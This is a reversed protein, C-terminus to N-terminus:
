LTPETREEGRRREATRPAALGEHPWGPASGAASELLAALAAAWAEIDAPREAPRKALAAEFAADAAPPLGPVHSSASPPTGYLVDVLMRAVETGSVVRQGTLAEYAVAALSYLDARADVATGEVQEPSMYAPTGVFNGTRTLKAELRTSKALGFDLLKARFARQDPMLFINAPKVDRHVVGARHAAALAAAAQRLLSAVQAPTGAGHRTLVGALDRGTLLEMVLFASGDELEGSDFLDIVGPHRIRALTQAERELRFRAEADGLMEARIVKLAVDRRLREDHAEFVSGMGGEGLLFALRYRDLVRYPLVRSADLPSADAACREATEDYCRGCRPCLKLTHVGRAHMRERVELQRAATTTLQERLHQLDLASGLHQALAGVLRREADGWAVPGEITLAGRLEGTMGTVRVIASDGAAGLEVSRAAQLAEWSPPAAAGPTLPTLSEGDVRWLHVRRAHIARGVQDAMSTGWASVNELKEPTAESLRALQEQVQRLEENASRLERTQEEVIRELEAARRKLFRMRIRQVGAGLVILGVGCLAQFARTQYFYPQLRLRLTAGSENWVGDANSAKVRFTYDGPALSTYHASRETGADVWDGDFGELRYRFRVREPAPFSLATYRLDFKRSGPPFDLAAGHAPLPAGDLVVEELVVPPALANGALREPDVVVVGKITPFWLRGDRGKWAAPQNEGNCEASRMGDAVGYATSSLRALSGAAVADLEKRSAMFIGRNGSMWLRGQGDELTQFIRDDHLGAKATIAAFRGDRFRTLGSATGIWLTGEGDEYLSAIRDDALGDRTTFVTFTGDRFRNLGSATGIWLDGRSDELIAGARDQSLGDKTTYSTFRGDRFRNLGGGDTGVWLSGQRDEYLSVVYEGSLGHRASFATIEGGRIRNLGGGLTGVWLAGARDRHVAAIQDSSLGDRTTLTTFRGDRLRNLGGGDTGIWVDGASDEHVTLVADSSLGERTTYTLFKGDRLRNLGGAHTGIWLSGERDELLSVVVDSSLGSRTTVAAFAGDRFRNLGGNDTGVWLNGDRDEALSWILNSSLGDRTTFVTFSGDRLRNLGGNFTGIWLSGDRDELLSSVEDDSLGARTTFSTFRGDKLRGLGGGFTGVWLSGSRDELITVVQDSPLGDATTLAEFRGDKFRILGGGSTGIWLNGGRDEHLARVRDDPLGERTTFPTFRGARYRSLGTGRGGIWLNGARDEFLASIWTHPLGPTNRRDFVKFRVGDFRVLGEQTGLWLYGDRTQCIAEVANQPLGQETQWVGHIYQTLAKRPDLAQAPAAALALGMAVGVRLYKIGHSQHSAVAEGARRTASTISM